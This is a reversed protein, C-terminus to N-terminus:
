KETILIFETFSEGVLACACFLVALFSETSSDNTSSALQWGFAFLPVISQGRSQAPTWHGTLQVQIASGLQGSAMAMHGSQHKGISRM